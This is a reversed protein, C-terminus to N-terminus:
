QTTQSCTAELSDPDTELACRLADETSAAGMPTNLDGLLKGVILALSLGALAKANGPDLDIADRFLRIMASFDINSFTELMKYGRSTLESSRSERSGSSSRFDEVREVPKSQSPLMHLLVPRGPDSPEKRVM